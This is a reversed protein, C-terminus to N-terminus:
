KKRSDMVADLARHMRARKSSDLAKKENGFRTLGASAGARALDKYAAEDEPTIAPHNYYGALEVRIQARDGGKIKAKVREARQHGLRLDEASPKWTM